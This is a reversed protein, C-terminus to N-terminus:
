SPGAFSSILNSLEPLSPAASPLDIASSPLAKVRLCGTPCILTWGPNSFYEAKPRALILEIVRGDWGVSPRIAITVSAPHSATSAAANQARHSRLAPRFIQSRDVARPRSVIAAYPSTTHDQLGASKESALSRLFRMLVLRKHSIRQFLFLSARILCAGIPGLKLSRCPHSQGKGRGRNPNFEDVPRAGCAVAPQKADIDPEPPLVSRSPPRDSKETQGLQSMRGRVKGPENCGM